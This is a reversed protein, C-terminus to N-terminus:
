DNPRVAGQNTLQPMTALFRLYENKLQDVVEPHSASVDVSETSDKALNFLPFDNDFKEPVIGPYQMSNPQESQAIITPLLCAPANEAHVFGAMAVERHAIETLERYVNERM